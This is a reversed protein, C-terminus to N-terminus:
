AAVPRVASRGRAAKPWWGRVSWGLSLLAAYMPGLLMWLLWPGTRDAVQNDALAIAGVGYPVAGSLLM